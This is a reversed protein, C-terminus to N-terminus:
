LCEHKLRRKPSFGLLPSFGLKLFFGLKLTEYIGVIDAGPVLRSYPVSPVRCPVSPVRRAMVYPVRCGARQVANCASNAAGPVFYAGPVSYVCFLMGPVSPVRCATKQSYHLINM